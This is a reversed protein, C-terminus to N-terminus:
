RGMNMAQTLALRKSFPSLSREKRPPQPSQAFTKSRSNIRNSGRFSSGHWDCDNLAQSGDNRPSNSYKEGQYLRAGRNMSHRSRTFETRERSRNRSQSRRHSSQDHFKKRRKQSDLSTSSQRKRPSRQGDQSRYRRRRNVSSESVTSISSSRSIRSSKSLLDPRDEIFNGHNHRERVYSDPSTSFRRRTTNRSNDGSRVNRLRRSSVESSYSLSSSSSRRRRKGLEANHTSTRNRSLSTRPPSPTPSHSLDTSITSISTSSTSSISRSRKGSGNTVEDEVAKPKRARQEEYEPKKTNTVGRRDLTLM